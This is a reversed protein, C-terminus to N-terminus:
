HYRVVSGDPLDAHAGGLMPKGDQALAAHDGLVFYHTHGPFSLDPQVKVRGGRDTEVALWKGAPSPAVGATWFVTRSAIREGGVMVGGEDIRDVGKGLRVEVGLKELRRRAAASIDEAFTGLVRPAM